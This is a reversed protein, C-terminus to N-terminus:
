FGGADPDSGSHKAPQLLSGPFSAFTKKEHADRQKRQDSALRDLRAIEADYPARVNGVEKVAAQASENDKYRGVLHTSRLTVAGIDGVRVGSIQHGADRSVRIVSYDLRGYSTSRVVGWFLVPKM